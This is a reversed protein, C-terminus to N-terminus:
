HDRGKPAKHPSKYQKGTSQVPNLLQAGQPSFLNIINIALGFPKPTLGGQPKFLGGYQKGAGFPGLDCTGPMLVGPSILHAGNLSFLNIINIAPRFPKPIAGRPLKSDIM